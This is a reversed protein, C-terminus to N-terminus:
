SKRFKGQTKKNQSEQAYKSPYGNSNTGGRWKLPAECVKKKIKKQKIKPQNPTEIM